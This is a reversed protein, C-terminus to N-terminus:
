YFFINYVHVIDAAIADKEVGYQRRDTLKTLNKNLIKMWKKKNNNNTM